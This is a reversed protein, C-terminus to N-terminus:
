DQEREPAPLPVAGGSRPRGREARPAPGPPPHREGSEDRPGRQARAADARDHGPQHACRPGHRLWRSGPMPSWRLAWPRDRSRSGAAPASRAPGCGSGAVPTLANGASGGAVWRARHVGSQPRSMGCGRCRGPCGPVGVRSAQGANGSGPTPVNTEPKPASAPWRRWCCGGRRSRQWASCTVSCWRGCCWPFRRPPCM